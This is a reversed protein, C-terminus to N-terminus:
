WNDCQVMPSEAGKTIFTSEKEITRASHLNINAGKMANKLQINEDRLSNIEEIATKLEEKLRINEQELFDM